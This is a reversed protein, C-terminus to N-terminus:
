IFVVEFATMELSVLNTGCRWWDDDCSYWAHMVCRLLGVDGCIMTAHIACMCLM